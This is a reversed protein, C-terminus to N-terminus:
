RATFRKGQAAKAAAQNTPNQFGRLTNTSAQKAVQMQHFAADAAAFKSSRPVISEHRESAPPLLLAEAKHKAMAALDDLGLAGFVAGAPGHKALGERAGEAALALGVGPLARGLLKAGAKAVLGSVVATATGAVVAAKGAQLTAERDTLGSASAKSKTADYAVAAAALPAVIMGAGLRTGSKAAAKAIESRLTAVNMSSRGVINLKRAHARLEDRGGALAKVTADAGKAKGARTAAAKSARASYDQEIAAIQKGVQRAHKASSKAVVNLNRAELKDRLDAAAQKRARLDGLKPKAARNELIAKLNAKNATGRPKPAPPSKAQTARAASRAPSKAKSEPIARDANLSFIAGGATVVVPGDAGALSQSAFRL